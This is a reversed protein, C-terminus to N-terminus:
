CGFVKFYSVTPKNGTLFEHSTKKVHWMYPFLNCRTPALYTENPIMCIAILIIYSKARVNCGLM